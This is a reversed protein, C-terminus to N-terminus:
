APVGQYHHGFSKEEKRSYRPPLAPSYNPIVDFHAQSASDTARRNWIEGVDTRAQSASFGALLRSLESRIRGSCECACAELKLRNVVTIRGRQCRILGQTKLVGLEQTISERRVNLMEGICEQTTQLENSPL